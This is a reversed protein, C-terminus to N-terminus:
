RGPAMVDPSVLAHVEAKQFNYQRYLPDFWADLFFHAWDGQRIIFSDQSLGEADQTLVLDVRDGRLHSFTKIVSDPPVVPIDKLMLSELRSRAMVHSNITFSPNMILAHQDLQFFYTSHPNQAMAHRVAPIRTWSKPAGALDYESTIAFFTKYGLAHTLRTPHARPGAMTATGHLRAYQRRNEKIKEIYDAKHLSYDLATVIVVEPTGIPPRRSWWTFARAFYWLCGLTGLALLAILQIRRIRLPASRSQRPAYPPPHSTKRPPLAFHM